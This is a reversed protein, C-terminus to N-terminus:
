VCALIRRGYVDPAPGFHRKMGRLCRRCGRLVSAAHGPHGAAVAVAHVDGVSARETAVIIRHCQHAACRGKNHLINPYAAFEESTAAQFRVNPAAFDPVESVVVFPCGGCALKQIKDNSFCPMSASLAAHLCSASGNELFQPPIMARIGNYTELSDNSDHSVWHAKYSSAVSSM